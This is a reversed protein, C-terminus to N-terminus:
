YQIFLHFIFINKKTPFAAAVRGTLISTLIVDFLHSSKFGSTKDCERYSRKTIILLSKDRHTFRSINKRHRKITKPSISCLIQFEEGIPRLFDNEIPVWHSMSGYILDKGRFFDQHKVLYSVTPSNGILVVKKGEVINRVLEIKHEISNIM